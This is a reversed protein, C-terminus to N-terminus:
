LKGAPVPAYTVIQRRTRTCFDLAAPSPPLFTGAVAPALGRARPSESERLYKVEYEITQKFLLLAPPPPLLAAREQKEYSNKKMHIM